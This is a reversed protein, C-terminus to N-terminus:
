PSTVSCKPRSIRLTVHHSSAAPRARDAGLGARLRHALPQIGHADGDGLPVPWRVRQVLPKM